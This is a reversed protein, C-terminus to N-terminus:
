QNRFRGVLNLSAGMAPKPSIARLLAQLIAVAVFALPLTILTLFPAVIYWEMGEIGAADFYYMQGRVYTLGASGRRFLFEYHPHHDNSVEGGQLNLYILSNGKADFGDICIGDLDRLSEYGPDDEALLGTAAFHTPLEALDGLDTSSAGRLLGLDRIVAAAYYASEKDHYLDSAKACEEVDDIGGKGGFNGGGTIMVTVINRIKAYRHLEELPSPRRLAYGWYAWSWLVSLAFAGILGLAVSWRVPHRIEIRGIRGKSAITFKM